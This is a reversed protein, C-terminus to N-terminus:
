NTGLMVAADGLEQIFNVSQFLPHVVPADVDRQQSQTGGHLALTGLQLDRTRKPM